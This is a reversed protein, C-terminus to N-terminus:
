EYIGLPFDQGTGYSSPYQATGSYKLTLEPVRDEIYAKIEAVTIKKDMKGGDAKGSLAELFAYTFAGHGLTSFEKATQESGCAAIFVSGSSRALQFIAQQEALGRRGTGKFGAESHCADMIVLQKNASISSLMDRMATSSLGREKILSGSLSTVDHLVMYFDSEDSQEEQLVIGHGAYYLIFMDTIKCKSKIDTIRNKINSLTAESNYLNYSYVKNFINKGNKSLAESISKADTYGYNLNMQANKYENLGVVIVYLDSIAVNSAKCDIELVDAPSKGKRKNITFVKFKNIGPILRVKYEKTVKDKFNVLNFEKDIILLKDNQLLNLEEIGGGGYQIDVSLTVESTDTLFQDTSKEKLDRKTNAAIYFPQKFRPPSARYLHQLDIRSEKKAALTKDMNGTQYSEVILDPRYLAESYSDLENIKALIKSESNMQWGLYSDANQSGCFYGEKSWLIWEGNTEQFYSYSPELNHQGMSDIKWVCIKQDDGGAALWKGDPSVAMARVTSPLGQLSRMMEGNSNYLDLGRDTGLLLYGGALERLCMIRAPHDGNNYDIITNKWKIRYPDIAYKSLEHKEYNVEMKEGVSKRVVGNKFDIEKSLNGEKMNTNFSLTFNDHFKLHSISEARNSLIKLTKGNSASFVRLNHNSGGAAVVEYNGKASSPSFALSQVTNDFDTYRSLTKGKPVTICEILGSTEQSFVINHGDYSFAIDTIPNSGRFLKKLYNGQASYMQILYDDGGSVLVASDPSFAVCRVPHFHKSITKINTSEGSIKAASVDAVYVRENGVAVAIAHRDYAWDIDVIGRPLAFTQHLTINGQVECKWVKLTKDTSASALYKGDRSYQLSTISANHAPIQIETENKSDLIIIHTSDPNKLDINGGFAIFRGDPSQTVGYIKGKNGFGIKAFHKKISIEKEIDWICLSKDDSVTLVETGSKNYIVKNIRSTHADPTVVFHTQAHTYAVSVDLFIIYLLLKM